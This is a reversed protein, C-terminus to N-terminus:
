VRHWNDQWHCRVLFFKSHGRPKSDSDSIDTRRSNPVCLRSKFFKLLKTSKVKTIKYINLDLYVISPIYNWDSDSDIAGHHTIYYTIMVVYAEICEYPVLVGYSKVQVAHRLIVSTLPSFIECVFNDSCSLIDM